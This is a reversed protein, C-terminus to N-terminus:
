DDTSRMRMEMFDNQCKALIVRAAKAIHSQFYSPKSSVSDAAAKQSKRKILAKIENPAENINYFNGEEPQENAIVTLDPNTWFTEEFGDDGQNDFVFFNIKDFM